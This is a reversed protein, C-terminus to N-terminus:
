CHQATHTNELQQYSLASGPPRTTKPTTKCSSAQPNSDQQLWPHRDRTLRTHTLYLGRCWASGMDLCTRGLTHTDSLTILPLM